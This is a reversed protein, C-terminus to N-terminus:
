DFESGWIYIFLIGVVWNFWNGIIIGFRIGVLEGLKIGVGLGFRIGVVGLGIGIVIELNFIIGIELGLWYRRSWGILYCCSM